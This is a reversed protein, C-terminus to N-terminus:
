KLEVIIARQRGGVLTEYHVRDRANFRITGSTYDNLTKEGSPTTSELGGDELFMVVVDKVHFHMETPEGRTWTYDWVTVRDNDFLQLIGDRPFAAPYGTNNAIPPIREDKLEVTLTAPESGAPGTPVAAADAASAPNFPEFVVSAGATVGPTPAVVVTNGTGSGAATYTVSATKKLGSSLYVNVAPYPHTGDPRSGRWVTVRPNDIVPSAAPNATANAAPTQASAPLLTVALMALTLLRAPVASNRRPRLMRGVRDWVVIREQLTLFTM